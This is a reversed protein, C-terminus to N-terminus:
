LKWGFRLLTLFFAALYENTEIGFVYGLFIMTAFCVTYIALLYTAVALAVVLKSSEDIQKQLKVREVM